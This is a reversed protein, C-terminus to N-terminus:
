GAMWIFWTTARLRSTRAGRRRGRTAAYVIFGAVVVYVAAGLGFM